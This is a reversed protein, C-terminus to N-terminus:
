ICRWWCIMYTFIGYLGYSVLGIAGVYAAMFLAYEIAIQTSLRM